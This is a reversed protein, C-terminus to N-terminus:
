KVYSIRALLVSFVRFVGKKQLSCGVLVPGFTHGNRDCSGESAQFCRSRESEGVMAKLMKSLKKRIITAFKDPYANHEGFDVILGIRKSSLWNGFKLFLLCVM